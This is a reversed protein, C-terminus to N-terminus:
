GKTKKRGMGAIGLLGIGFLIMTAPEPVPNYQGVLQTQADRGWYDVINVAKIDWGTIDYGGSGYNTNFYNWDSWSGGAESELHWIARQLKNKLGSSQGFVNDMYSAFLWKTQTSVYDKGNVAGGGGGTAYDAVSQVTYTWSSYFRVQSELCFTYYSSWDDNTNLNTMVYQFKTNPSTSLKVKDGPDIPLAWASQAMLFILGLLLGTKILKKM